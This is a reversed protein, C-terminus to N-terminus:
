FLLNTLLILPINYNLYLSTSNSNPNKPPTPLINMITGKIANINTAIESALKVGENVEIFVKKLGDWFNTICDKIKEWNSKEIYKLSIEFSGYEEKYQSNIFCKFRLINSAKETNKRFIVVRGNRIGAAFVSGFIKYEEEIDFQDGFIKSQTELYNQDKFNTINPFIPMGDSINFYTGVETPEVPFEDILVVLEYIGNTEGYIYRGKFDITTNLLQYLSEKAASIIKEYRNQINHWIGFTTIVYQAILKADKEDQSPIQESWTQWFANLAKEIERKDDKDEFNIEFGGQSEENERFLEYKNNIQSSFKDLSLKEIIFDGDKIIPALLYLISFFEDKLNFTRGFIDFTLSSFIPFDEFFVRSNRISIKTSISSNYDPYENILVRYYRADENHTIMNKGKFYLSINYLQFFTENSVQILKERRKSVARRIGFTVAVFEAALRTNQIYEKPISDKVNNWFVELSEEISIKDDKDELIIDITGINDKAHLEYKSITDFSDYNEKPFKVMIIGTYRFISNLINWFEERLNYSRGFLTITINEPIEFESTQEFKYEFTNFVENTQTMNENIIVRLFKTDDDIELFYRQKFDLQMEYLQYFTENAEQTLKIYNDSKSAQLEKIEASNRLNMPSVFLFAFFIILSYLLKM